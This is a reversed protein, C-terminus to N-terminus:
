SPLLRWSFLSLLSLLVLRHVLGFKRHSVSNYVPKIHSETNQFLPLRVEELYINDLDYPTRVSEVM